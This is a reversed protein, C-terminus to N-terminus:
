ELRLIGFYKPQHFDPNSSAVKNWALYHLPVLDDGCKYFNTKYNNSKFCSINDYFFVTVPFIITIDWKYTLASPPKEVWKVKRRITEIQAPHLKKRDYRNEGYSALCAGLSNFEFNYYSGSGDVAIFFEVCSDKFVPDNAHQYIAQHTNEEVYFKVMLAQPHYATVFNVTPTKYPKEWCIEDIQQPELENLVSDIKDWDFIDAITLRKAICIKDSVLIDSQPM